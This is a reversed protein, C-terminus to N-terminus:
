EDDNQRNQLAAAGKEIADYFSCSKEQPLSECLRCLQELAKIRDFLKIEWGGGKVQKIESVNFLDLQELEHSAVSDDSKILRIVDGISGFAVRMLGKVATQRINESEAERELSRLYEAVERSALLKEATQECDNPPYGAKVAAERANKLRHYFGCFLKQKVSLQISDDGKM